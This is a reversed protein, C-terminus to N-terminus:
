NAAAAESDLLQALEAAPKYGPIMTGSELVINPTGRVGLRRGLEFHENIPNACTKQGINEDQKAKTLAATRDESCWVTVAKAYSDPGLVPYLLYRVKIGQGTYNGIEQHFRRCYPCNVDTFVTITHRVEGDPAYVIMKDEGMAEIAALRATRRREDTLNEGEPLRIIDGQIVFQGDETLYLVQLGVVVEYLGPVPTPNVSDPTIGGLAATLNELNPPDAAVAQLSGAMLGAFLLKRFM